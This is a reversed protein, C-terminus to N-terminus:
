FWENNLWKEYNLLDNDGMADFASNESLLQDRILLYNDESFEVGENIIHKYDQRKNNLNNAYEELELRYKDFNNM